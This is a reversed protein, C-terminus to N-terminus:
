VDLGRGYSFFMSTRVATIPTRRADDAAAVRGYVHRKSRFCRNDPKIIV